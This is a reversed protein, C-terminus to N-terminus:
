SKRTSWGSWWEVSGQFQIPLRTTSTNNTTTDNDKLQLKKEMEEKEGTCSVWEGGSYLKILM